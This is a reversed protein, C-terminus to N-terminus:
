LFFYRAISESFYGSNLVYFFLEGGSALEEVVVCTVPYSTKEKEVKNSIQFDKVNVIGPHKLKMLAQVENV